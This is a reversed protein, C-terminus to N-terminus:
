PLILYIRFFYTEEQKTLFRQIITVYRVYFGIVILLVGLTALMDIIGIYSKTRILHQLEKSKEM